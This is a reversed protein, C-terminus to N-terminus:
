NRSGCIRARTRGSRKTRVVCARFVPIATSGTRTPSSRGCDSRPHLPAAMGVQLHFEPYAM